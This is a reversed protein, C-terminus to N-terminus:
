APATTCRTESLTHCTALPSLMRRILPVSTTTSSKALLMIETGFGCRESSCGVMFGTASTSRMIALELGRPPKTTSRHPPEPVVSMADSLSARRQLRISYSGFYASTM